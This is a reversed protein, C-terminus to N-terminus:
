ILSIRNLPQRPVDRAQKKPEEPFNTPLIYRIRQTLSLKDPTQPYHMGGGSQSSPLALAGDILAFPVPHPGLSEEIAM